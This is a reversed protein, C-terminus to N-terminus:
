LGDDYVLRALSRPPPKRMRVAAPRLPKPQPQPRLTSVVPPTIVQLSESVSSRSGKIELQFSVEEGIPAYAVSGMRLQKADLPIEMRRRGDVITLMGGGAHLSVAADRSWNVRLYSGEREVRLAPAGSSRTESPRSGFAKGVQYDLVGFGALVLAALGVRRWRLEPPRWNPIRIRVTPPIASAAAARPAPEEVPASQGQLLRADFPFELYTTHRQIDGEQWFFFGGAPPKGAQPRVLLFVHSPDTFFSAILALDDQDLYLGPRTHSRYFGIVSAGRKRLARELRRRDSESLVYSPGRRHECEVPEFSEVVVGSRDSAFRGLLLGGAEVGRGPAARCPKMLVTSISDIVQLSLQVSVEGGPVKWEYHPGPARSPVASGSTHRM